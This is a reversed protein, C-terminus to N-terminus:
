FAKKFGVIELRGDFHARFSSDVGGYIDVLFHKNFHEGDGALEVVSEVESVDAFYEL